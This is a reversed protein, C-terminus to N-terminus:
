DVTRRPFNTLLQADSRGYLTYAFGLPNCKAHFYQRADKIALGIPWADALGELVKGAFLDAFVATMPCETGVVASANREIFRRTLGHGMAPLLDASHCMNLFIIPRTQGQFFDIENLETETLSATGFFMKAEGPLVDLRSLLTDWVPQTEAGKALDRLVQISDAALKPNEGPTFGQCFFYYLQAPLPKSLSAKVESLTSLYSPAGWGGRQIAAELTARHPVLGGFGPDIVSAVQVSTDALHLDRAGERTIQEVVYRLGWFAKPEPKERPHPDPRMLAWPFAFHRADERCTIQILSDDPLDLAHILDGITAGSGNRDNGFFLRWAAGGFRWMEALCKQYKYDLLRDKVSLDGVVLETWFDRIRVLLARVDEAPITRGLPIPRPRDPGVQFIADATYGLPAGKIRLSLSVPEMYISPNLAAPRDEPFHKHRCLHEPNDGIVIDRITLVDLLHLQASYILVEVDVVNRSRQGHHTECRFFARESDRNFPWVLPLFGDEFSLLSEDLSEVRAYVTATEDTERPPALTTPADGESDIGIRDARIAIELTYYSKTKLAKDDPVIDAPDPIDGAAYHGYYLVPDVFRDAESPVPAVEPEGRDLAEDEFDGPEIEFLDKLNAEELRFSVQEVIDGGFDDGDSRSIKLARDPPVNMDLPLRPGVRDIESRLDGLNEGVDSEHDFRLRGALINEVLAAHLEALSMSGAQSLGFTEAVRPSVEIVPPTAFVPAVAVLEGLYAAVQAVQASLRAQEMDNDFGFAPAMLALPTEPRPDLRLWADFLAVDPPADHSLAYVYDTLFGPLADEPAALLAEPRVPVEASLEFVERLRLATRSGGESGAPPVLQVTLGTGVPREHEDDQSGYQHVWLDPAYHFDQASGLRALGRTFPLLSSDVAGTGTAVTRLPWQWHHEWGQRPVLLAVSAIASSPVARWDPALGADHMAALPVLLRGVVELCDEASLLDVWVRLRCGGGALFQETLTRWIAAFDEARHSAEVADGRDLPFRWLLGRRDARRLISTLQIEPDYISADRARIVGALALAEAAVRPDQATDQYCVPPM